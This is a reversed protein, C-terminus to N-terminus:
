QAELLKQAIGRKRYLPCVSVALSTLYKGVSYHEFVDIQGMVFETMTKIDKIQPCQFQFPFENFMEFDECACM